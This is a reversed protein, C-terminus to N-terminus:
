DKPAKKPRIGIHKAIMTFASENPNFQKWVYSIITILISIKAVTDVSINFVEANSKVINWVGFLVTAIFSITLKPSQKMIIQLYKFFKYIQKFEKEKLKKM